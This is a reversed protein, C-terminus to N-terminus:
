PALVSVPVQVAPSVLPPLLSRCRPWPLVEVQYSTGALAESSVSATLYDESSQKISRKLLTDSDGLNKISDTFSKLKADLDSFAQLRNNLWTKDTELRTIPMREVNMLQEIINYTDLGSALGGFQITM